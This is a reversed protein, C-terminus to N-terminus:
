HLRDFLDSNEDVEWVSGLNQREKLDNALVVAQRTGIMLTVFSLQEIVWERLERPCLSTEGIAYLPWILNHLGSPRFPNFFTGQPHPKFKPDQPDFVDACSTHVNPKTTPLDPFPVQGTVQPISACIDASTTRIIKESAKIQAAAEDREFLPPWRELGKLIEARIVKHLILRVARLNNWMQVLWPDLYIHYSYGYGHKAPQELYITEYKWINPMFAKIEDLEKDLNTAASVMSIPDSTTNGSLEIADHMFRVMKTTGLLEYILMFFVKPHIKLITILAESV